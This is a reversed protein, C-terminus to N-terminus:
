GRSAETPVRPWSPHGQEGSAGWPWGLVKHLGRCDLMATLQHLSSESSNLLLQIRLLDKQLLFSPLALMCLPLSQSTPGPSTPLGACLLQRASARLALPLLWVAPLSASWM